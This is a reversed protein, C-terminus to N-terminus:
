PMPLHIHASAEALPLVRQSGTCHQIENYLHKRGLQYEFNKSAAEWEGKWVSLCECMGTAASVVSVVQSKTDQETVSLCM